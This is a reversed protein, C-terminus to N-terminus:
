APVVVLDDGIDLAKFLPPCCGRLEECGVIFDDKVGIILIVVHVLGEDNAEVLSGDIADTGGAGGRL